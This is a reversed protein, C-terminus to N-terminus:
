RTTFAHTQKSVNCWHRVVGHAYVGCCAYRAAGMVRGYRTQVYAAAPELLPSGSGVIRGLMSPAGVLFVAGVVTGLLLSVILADSVILMVGHRDRKAFAIALMNTTAMALFSLFYSTYDILMTGPALAALQVSNTAGM